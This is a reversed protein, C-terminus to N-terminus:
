ESSAITCPLADMATVASQIASARGEQAEGGEVGTDKAVCRLLTGDGGVPGVSFCPRFSEAAPLSESQTSEVPSM